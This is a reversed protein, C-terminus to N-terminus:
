QTCLLVQGYPIEGFLRSDGFRLERIDNEPVFDRIDVREVEDTGGETNGERVKEVKVIGYNFEAAFSGEEDFDVALKGASTYAISNYSECDYVSEGQRQMAVLM